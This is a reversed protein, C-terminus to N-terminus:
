LMLKAIVFDFFLILVCARTVARTGAEGVELAGGSTFYGEYTSVSTILFAFVVSKVMSVNLTFFKFSERAGQVFENPPLIGTMKAAIIGGSIMLFNAIIILCPIMILGGLIKPVGLFGASNIGMVELADIQETVRMNGVESAINAGVKGALVLCTITPALELLSSDSVITGIIKLPILPSVLQYATQVTTVAGVFFSIVTVIGLSGVGINNMEHITREVFVRAREPKFFMSRIFLLYRGLEYFLNM